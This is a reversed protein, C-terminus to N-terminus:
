GHDNEKERLVPTEGTNQKVEFGPRQTGLTRRLKRRWEIWDSLICIGVSACVVACVILTLFVGDSM